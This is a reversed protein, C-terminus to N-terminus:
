SNFVCVFSKVSYCTYGFELRDERERKEAATRKKVAEVTSGDSDQSQRKSSGPRSINRPIAGAKLKKNRKIGFQAAITHDSEFCDDTFHESCLRSYKTAAKWDARTRSM